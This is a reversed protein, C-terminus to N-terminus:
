DTEPETEELMPPLPCGLVAGALRMLEAEGIKVKGDATAAAFLAGMLESKALPALARLKELAQSVAELSLAQMAAFANGALGLQREGARFAAEAEEPKAGRGAHAVLALLRLAEARLESVSKRAPPAAASLLQSKVLALVVFEHLSVRRDARIVAELAALLRRREDEPQAKLAPLALDVLPLCLAPPLRAAEAAYGRATEALAAAGAARAEDLQKQMVAEPEALLLALVVPGAADPRRAAERLGAPFRELLRRAHDVKAADLAGVLAVSEAVSRGWAYARDAARNGAAAVLQPAPEAEAIAEPAARSRRYEAAGFGPLVRRIREELPPHTDFLGHLWVNVAQGFFMHSLDEAYRNMVLAGAGSARIQDLAGAIGSPNRTFQVSAADALFERQRSVAAKILRAFFVGVYGIVFLGLGFLVIGGSGSDKSGSRRSSANRMLFSGVAGIFLIGGLVGMMRLNLGMDGNVIHSFEHGVVGQLEDRNLNQLTGRTVTIISNSVDTGAAFANIGKEDQLVFVAPVRVGAAIAMEEVVNLLRRELLDRTDSAVRTAGLMRAIAEGGERLRFMQVLSAVGIVALTVLAGAVYLAGPVEAQTRTSMSWAWAIGLVVDVSAVVAAVALAYLLLMTRTNRRALSQQEFFNM